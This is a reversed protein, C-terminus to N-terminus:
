NDRNLSDVEKVINAGVRLHRPFPAEGGAMPAFVKLVEARITQSAM